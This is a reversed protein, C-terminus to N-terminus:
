WTNLKDFNRKERENRKSEESRISFSCLWFVCMTSRLLLLFFLDVCSDSHLRTLHCAINFVCLCTSSKTQKNLSVSEYAFYFPFFDLFCVNLLSLLLRACFIFLRLRSCLFFIHFFWGVFGSYIFIYIFFIYLMYNLGIRISATSEFNMWLYYDSLSSRRSHSGYLCCCVIETHTKKRKKIEEQEKERKRFHDVVINEKRNYTHTKVDSMHTRRGHLKETCRQHEPEIIAKALSYSLLFCYNKAEKQFDDFWLIIKWEDSIICRPVGFFRKELSFVVVSQAPKRNNRFQKRINEM